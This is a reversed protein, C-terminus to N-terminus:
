FDSNATNRLSFQLVLYDFYSAYNWFLKPFSLLFQCYSELISTFICVINFLLIFRFFKSCLGLESFFSVLDITDMYCYVNMLLVFYMLVYIPVFFALCKLPLPYDKCHINSSFRYMHVYLQQIYLCIYSLFSVMFNQRSGSIFEM